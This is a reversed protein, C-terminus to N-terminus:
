DQLFRDRTAVTEEYTKLCNLLYDALVHNPTNSKNGKSHERLICTLELRFAEQQKTEGVSM